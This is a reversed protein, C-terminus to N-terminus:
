PFAIEDPHIAWRDEFYPSITPNDETLARKFRILANMHSDACHHVVQRITWGDPRYPTNLDEESLGRIAKELTVPFDSITKIWARKVAPETSSKIVNRGIPYCLNELEPYPTM